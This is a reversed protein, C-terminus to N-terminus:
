PQEDESSSRQAAVALAVALAGLAGGCWFAGIICGYYWM